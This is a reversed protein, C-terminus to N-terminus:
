RPGPLRPVVVLFQGRGAEVGVLTALDERLGNDDEAADPTLIDDGV